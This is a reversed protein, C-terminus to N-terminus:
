QSNLEKLHEIILEKVAPEDADNPIDFGHNWNPHFIELKGSMDIHENQILPDDQWQVAKSLHKNVYLLTQMDDKILYYQADHIHACPKVNLRQPSKRVKGMFESAARNNLMCWSQGLANGATRGESAAEHPTKSTGLIVQKLLPTRLRLGFAIVIYGLRSAEEIRQRSWEDSVKYLEHYNAEISKAVEESLGVNKMLTVYTGDYTLAFTPVKSDQRLNKYLKSISNVRVVNHQSPTTEKISTIEDDIILM